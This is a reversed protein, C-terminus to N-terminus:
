RGGSGATVKESGVARRCLGAPCSMGSPAGPTLSSVLTFVAYPSWRKGNRVSFNFRIVGITSRFRSLLYDGGQLAAKLAIQSGSKKKTIFRILGISKILIRCAAPAWPRRM